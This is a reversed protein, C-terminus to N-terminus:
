SKEAILIHGNPLSGGFHGKRAPLGLERSVQLLDRDDLTTLGHRALLASLRDPTWHSRHPEGSWPDPSRAVKMMARGILRGMGAKVSPAQYNVVLRSGRASRAAIAVLTAGVQADTLYPVVGEWVWTTPMDDRHGAQELEEGIAQRAFDTAVFRVQRAKPARDGLRSRKDAQSAPHDIEFVITASLEDMRWARADLGAGLIVLQETPHERVADDIAITRRAMLGACGRVFEYNMRDRWSKPPAERRVQEVVTREDDRLLSLAVPDSFRGVAIRDHAAARGQCVVVATRSPECGGMTAPDDLGDGDADDRPRGWMSPQVAMM